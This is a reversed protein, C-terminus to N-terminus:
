TVTQHMRARRLLAFIRAGLEAARFPKTVYDDAGSAFAELMDQASTNATLFLVPLSAFRESGRITKCMQLGNIGPLTWDLVLIQYESSEMRQLADEASPSTQVELGVAELMLAVMDRTDADDEVFLVRASSPVVSRTAGPARETRPAPEETEQPDVEAADPFPTAQQVRVSPPLRLSVPASNRTSRPGDPRSEPSAEDFVVPISMPPLDAEAAAQAAPGCFTLLRDWDREEFAISAASTEAVVARGAAATKQLGFEVEFTALVWEGHTPVLDPPLPLENPHQASALCDFMSALDPFRFVVNRVTPVYVCRAPGVLAARPHPIPPRLCREWSGPFVRELVASAWRTEAAM